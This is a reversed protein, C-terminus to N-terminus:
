WKRVVWYMWELFYIDLRQWIHCRSLVVSGPKWYMPPLKERKHQNTIKRLVRWTFSRQRIAERTLPSALPLVKELNFADIFPIAGYLRAEEYSPRLMLNCILDGALKKLLEKDRYKKEDGKFRNERVFHKAYEEYMRTQLGENWASECGTQEYEDLVPKWTGDLQEYGLTTGHNAACLCEFLGASFEAWRFSGGIEGFLFPHAKGYEKGLKQFLGFYYGTLEEKKSIDFCELLRSICKQVSGTWGSDVIAFRGDALEQRFYEKTATFAAKEQEMSVQRFIEDKRYEPVANLLPLRLSYRSCYFYRCEVPLNWELCMKQAFKKMVYGDRALFYLTKIEKRVADELVWLVYAALVPAAAFLTASCFVPDEGCFGQFANEAPTFFDYWSTHERAYQKLIKRYEDRKDSM